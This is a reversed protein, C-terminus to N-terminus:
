GVAVQRRAAAGTDHKFFVRSMRQANPTTGDRSLTNEIATEILDFNDNLADNSQFGSLIQNLTLKAM